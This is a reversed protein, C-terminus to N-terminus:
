VRQFFVAREFAIIQGLIQVVVKYFGSIEEGAVHGFLRSKDAFIPTDGVMQGLCVIDHVVSEEQACVGAQGIFHELVCFLFQIFEHFLILMISAFFYKDSTTEM